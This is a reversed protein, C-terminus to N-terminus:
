SEPFDLVSGRVFRVVRRENLVFPPFKGDTKLLDFAEEETNRSWLPIWSGNSYAEVVFVEPWAVM